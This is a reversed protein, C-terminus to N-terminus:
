LASFFVQSKIKPNQKHKKKKIQSNMCSYKAVWGEGRGVRGLGWKSRRLKTIEEKMILTVHIYYLVVYQTWKPASRHVQIPILCCILLSMKPALTERESAM